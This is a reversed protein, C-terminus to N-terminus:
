GEDPNGGMEGAIGGWGRGGLDRGRAKCKVGGRKIECGKRGKVDIAKTWGDVQRCMLDGKYGGLM